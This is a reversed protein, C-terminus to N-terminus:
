IKKPMRGVSAPVKLKDIKEQINEFNKKELLPKESDLWVNKM